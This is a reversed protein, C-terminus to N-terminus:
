DAYIVVCAVESSNSKSTQSGPRIENEKGDHDDYNHGIQEEAMVM